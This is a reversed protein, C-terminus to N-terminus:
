FPFPNNIFYKNNLYQVKAFSIYAINILKHVTDELTWTSNYRKGQGVSVTIIAPGFQGVLQCDVERLTVNTWIRFWKDARSNRLKSMSVTHILVCYKSFTGVLAKEKPATWLTWVNSLCKYLSVCLLINSYLDMFISVDCILLGQNFIGM